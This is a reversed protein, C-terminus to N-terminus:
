KFTYGYGYGMCGFNKPVGGCARVSFKACIIHYLKFIPTTLDVVSSM